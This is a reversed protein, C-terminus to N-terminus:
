RTQAQLMGVIDVDELTIHSFRETERGRESCSHHDTSWDSLLLNFLNCSPYFLASQGTTVSRHQEKPGIFYFNQLLDGYFKKHCNIYKFINIFIGRGLDYSKYKQCIVWGQEFCKESFNCMCSSSTHLYPM